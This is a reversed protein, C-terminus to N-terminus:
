RRDEQQPLEHLAEALGGQVLPLPVALMLNLPLGFDEVANGAASALPQNMDTLLASTKVGAGNAVEVLGDFDLAIVLDAIEDLLVPRTQQRQALAVRRGRHELRQRAHARDRMFETRGARKAPEDLFREQDFASYNM